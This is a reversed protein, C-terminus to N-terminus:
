PRNLATVAPRGVMPTAAPLHAELTALWATKAGISTQPQSPTLTGHAEWGGILTGAAAAATALPQPQRLAHNIMADGFFTWDSDARCGFSTRDSSSATLIATTDSALMPVFVGSYCASILLLRNEIGLQQLISWLRTPSMAGFGHDGDNYVVGFPAGHSTTYLVLVDEKGMLEAIRALAIGINQLSGMPLTSPASGDSGALVISHGAAAYRRTLVRGAERAERGFVADSDLAAVVVFAEVVGHRGPRLQALATDLRRHEALEETASRDREISTGLEALLAVEGPSANGVLPAPQTHAPPRYQAPAATVLGALVAM